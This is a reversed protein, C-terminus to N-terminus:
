YKVIRTKMLEGSSNSIRILYVGAPWRDANMAVSNEGTQLDINRKDLKRGSMDFVEYLINQKFKSRVKVNLGNGEFPNPYATLVLSGAADVPWDACAGKNPMNGDLWALRQTIWTKLSSIEEAYSTPIPSPNPWVYTGLIPWRQFHRQSSEGLLTYVSDIIELFRNNSFSQQRYRKWTCRLNSLFATDVMLREWWFPILGAQDGGCVNNFQYAWGQIYSGHCYDANRFALDYDWVPGAIIKGNVSNRNKHFYSSLRYGDVNRSIENVFFYDIFSPLEAFRRVGKVPDQFDPGALALEFSDVYSKIYAMQETSIDALKPTVFSFQRFDKYNSNPTPYSSFWGDPEKDLSFIYGGTLADGSNDTAAIKTINVRSANRKIKEMLVYVGKYDGNLVVEVFRCNSAWRGLERSMTYALFNRMLTKDTFPAYLVWDSERPMGLLPADLSSGSAKKLDVSYSKMPFMQSSQGRIEIAIKGNYENFPDSISNRIGVGNYIIGMDAPIKPDNPIEQGNTNIVVIPLNSSNLEIQAYGRFFCSFAFFMLAFLKPM